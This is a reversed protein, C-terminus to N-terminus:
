EPVANPDSGRGTWLPNKAGPGNGVPIGDKDLSYGLQKLRMPEAHGDAFLINGKSGHRMEVPSYGFTGDEGPTPGFRKTGHEQAWRPPDLTYSHQGHPLDAGRSDAVLVTRAPAKVLSDKVPWRAYRNGIKILSNGLYQWNFGYAGNRPSRALPGDLSPCIFYDNTMEDIGAQLNALSIVPGVGYDLFWHWRPRSKGYKNTYTVWSSTGSDYVEKLRVPPYTRYQEVYFFNAHGLQKLNSLCVTSRVQARATSLSPLLISILLAIIAVVVLVEILTFGVCNRSGRQDARHKGAGDTRTAPKVAESTRFEWKRAAM